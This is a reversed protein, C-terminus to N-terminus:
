RVAVRAQASSTKGALDVEAFPYALADRKQDEIDIIEGFEIVQVAGFGAILSQPM